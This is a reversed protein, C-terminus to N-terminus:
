QQAKGSEAAAAAESKKEANPASGANEAGKAEDAKPKEPEASPKADTPKAETKPPEEAKKAQDVKKAEDAKKAEGAKAAAAKKEAKEKKAVADKKKPKADPGHEKVCTEHIFENIERVMEKHFIGLSDELKATTWVLGKLLAPGKVERLGVWAKKVRGGEFKLKPEFVARVPEIGNGMEVDCLVTQREPAFTFKPETLAKVITQHPIKISVNCRADGFSWEINKSEGTEKIKAKGWTKGIDCTLAEKSAGPKALIVRCLKAECAKRAEKEGDEEEIAAAFAPPGGASQAAVAAAVAAFLIAANVGQRVPSGIRSM